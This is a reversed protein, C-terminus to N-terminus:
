FGIAAASLVFISVIIYGLNKRSYNYDVPLPMIVGCYGRALLANYSDRSYKISKIIMATSLASLSIFSKKLGTYGGRSRQSARIHAALTFLVSIFRYVLVIMERLLHPCHLKQLLYEVGSVPTTMIFYYFCSVASVSRIFLLRGLIFSEGTVALTITGAGWEFYVADYQGPVVFMISVLSFLIFVVPVCLCKLYDGAKIGAAILLLLSNLLFICSHIFINDSVLVILICGASFIFKEAPHVKSLKNFHATKDILFM